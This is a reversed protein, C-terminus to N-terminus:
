RRAAPAPRCGARGAAARIEEGDNFLGRESDEYYVGVVGRLRDYDFGLRIEQSLRREDLDFTSFGGEQETRDFDAARFGTSKSLGSIATLDFNFGIPMSQELTYLRSDFTENYRVDASETREGFTADHVTDGFENEGETYGIMASYGNLASPAVTLKARKTLREKRAADDRNLTINEVEGRDYHDEVSVRFMLQEGALPGGGAFAYQHSDRSIAAARLKADWYPTPSKSRLIVAGALSNRGQATSQPGRLVEVQELDFSSLPGAFSAARETLPVGDLYVSITEGEGGIGNQPIGRIAIEHDSGLRVVNGYRSVVEHMSTDPSSELDAATAIAASTASESLTRGLKDGTIVLTDLHVDAVEDGPAPTDGAPTMSVDTETAQTANVMAAATILIECAIVYGPRCRARSMWAPLPM